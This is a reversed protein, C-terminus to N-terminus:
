VAVDDDCGKPASGLIVAKRVDRKERKSLRHKKCHVDIIEEQRKESLTYNLYWDHKVTVGEKMLRHFDAPPTAEKYM